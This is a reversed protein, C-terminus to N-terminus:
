GKVTKLYAKAEEADRNMREVLADVSSFKEEERIKEFWKVVVAEGYIEEKFDFLHIEVAPQDGYNKHFTPKFGISAVGDRWKGDLCMKVAYVGTSPILYPGEPEINATPFGITRGRKEGSVVTGYIEYPQGLYQPVEGVKGARLLERIKTSSVKEGNKEVKEVITVGFRGKAHDDLTETTGKGKHGYTFDFGTVAHQVSLGVMYEDVFQQPSLSSFSQNFEVIYLRDIGLSEILRQKHEIPTLYEPNEKKGLVVAPHPYFTMVASQIGKDDAIQKATQIVKQHGSHIGDFFGLAMVVPAPDIETLQRSDALHYVEM